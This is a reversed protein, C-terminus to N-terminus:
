GRSVQEVLGAVAAAADRHAASRAAAAMTALAAPDDLLPQLEAALREPTAEADPVLRAAGVNVLARANATQHDHTAGPLPVLVSPLGVVALEAVTTAGARCIAVDAAAYVLEMHDQYQVQQYSLGNPSPAPAVARMAEWDRDGVIHYLALGPRDRWMEALAVVSQNIHWAGLSGGFAVIVTTNAPLDLARRAGARHEASGDVALVEPRVPNGTVVARPLPTAAFSVAVAKAVRAALRNAAGPVANQEAVVLPVRLVASALVCGLSAYGGVSVNV